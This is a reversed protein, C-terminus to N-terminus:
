ISFLLSLTIWNWIAALFMLHKNLLNQILCYFYKIAPCERSSELSSTFPLNSKTSSDIERGLILFITKIM